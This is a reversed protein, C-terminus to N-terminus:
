SGFSEGDDIHCTNSAYWSTAGESREYSCRPTNTGSCELDLESSASAVNEHDSGSEDVSESSCAAALLFAAPIVLRALSKLAHIM